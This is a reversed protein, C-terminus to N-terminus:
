SVATQSHPKVDEPAIGLYSAIMHQPVRQTLSPYTRIFDNYREEATASLASVIRQNKAIVSKQLAAQYPYAAEPIYEIVKKM